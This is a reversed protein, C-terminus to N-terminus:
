RADFVVVPPFFDLFLEFMQPIKNLNIIKPPFLSNNIKWVWVIVLFLSVDRQERRTCSGTAVSEAGSPTELRSKMKLTVNQFSFLLVTPVHLESLGSLLLM